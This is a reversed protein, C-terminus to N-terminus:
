REGWVPTGHWIQSDWANPLTVSGELLLTKGSINVLGSARFRSRARSHPLEEPRDVFAGKGGLRRDLISLDTEGDSAWCGWLFDAPGTVEGVTTTAGELTETGAAGMPTIDVSPRTATIVINSFNRNVPPGRRAGSALAAPHAPRTRSNWEDLIMRALPSATGGGWNVEDAEYRTLYLRAVALAQVDDLTALTAAKATASIERPIIQEAM